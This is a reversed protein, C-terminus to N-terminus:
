HYKIKDPPIQNWKSTRRLKAPSEVECPTITSILPPVLLKSQRPRHLNRRYSGLWIAGAVIRTSWSSLIKTSTLTTLSCSSELIAELQYSFCDLTILKYSSYCNVLVTELDVIGFARFCIEIFSATVSVSVFNSCYNRSIILCM